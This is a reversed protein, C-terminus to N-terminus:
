WSTRAYAPEPDAVLDVRWQVGHVRPDETGAAKPRAVSRAIAFPSSAEDVLADREAVANTSPERTYRGLV